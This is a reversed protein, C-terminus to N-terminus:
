NASRKKLIKLKATYQKVQDKHYQILKEYREIQKAISPKAGKKVYRRIRSILGLDDYVVFVDNDDFLDFSDAGTILRVDSYDFILSFDAYFDEWPLRIQKHVFYTDELIVYENTYRRVTFTWNLQSELDQLLQLYKIYKEKNECKYLGTSVINM